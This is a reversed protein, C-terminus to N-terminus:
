AGISGMARAFTGRKAEVARGIGEASGCQGVVRDTTFTHADLTEVFFENPDDSAADKVREALDMVIKELAPSTLMPRISRIQRLNNAM